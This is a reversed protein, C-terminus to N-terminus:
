RLSPLSRRAIMRFHRLGRSFGAPINGNAIGVAVDILYQLQLRRLRGFVDTMRQLAVRVDIDDRRLLYVAFHGHAVHGFVDNVATYGILFQGLVNLIRDHDAGIDTM